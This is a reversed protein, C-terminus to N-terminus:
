NLFVCFRRQRSTVDSKKIWVEGAVDIGHNESNYLRSASPFTVFCTFLKRCM